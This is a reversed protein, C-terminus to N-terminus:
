ETEEADDAATDVDDEAREVLGQAILQPALDEPLDVLAGPAPLDGWGM